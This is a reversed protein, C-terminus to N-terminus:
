FWKTIPIFSSCPRVSCFQGVVKQFVHSSSSQFVHASVIHFMEPRKVVNRKSDEISCSFTMQMWFAFSLM